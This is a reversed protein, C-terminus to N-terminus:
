KFWAKIKGWIVVFPIKGILWLGIMGIGVGGILWKWWNSVTTESLSTKSNLTSNVRMVSDLKTQLEMTYGIQLNLKETLGEQIQIDKENSEKVIRITEKVVPPKNTGPVIPKSPDYDTTHTEITKNKKESLDTKKDATKVSQDSVSGTQKEDLKKSVENDTKLNSSLNSKELKKTGSCSCFLILICIFAIRNQYQLFAVIKDYNRPNSWWRDNRIALALLNRFFIRKKTKM